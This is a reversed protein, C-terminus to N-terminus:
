GSLSERDLAPRALLARHFVGGSSDGTLMERALARLPHLEGRPAVSGPDHAALWPRSAIQVEFGGSALLERHAAGNMIRTVDHAGRVFRQAPRGRATLSLRAELPEISLLQGRCATRIATLARLPEEIWSLLGAAVVVDFAGFDGTALRDFDELRLEVLEDAGRRELEAKIAGNQLELGLCRRGRVAPWLLRLPDTGTPPKSAAPEPGSEVFRQPALRLGAAVGSGFSALARVAFRRSSPSSFHGAQYRLRTRIADAAAGPDRRLAAGVWAGGGREYVLLNQLDEEDTRWELHQVPPADIGWCRWGAAQMRLLLDAEEGHITAGPGLREDFGGVELGAVRRIAMAAGHSYAWIEPPAPGTPLRQAPQLGGAQSLGDVPGFGIGVDPELFAAAMADIWGPAIVCDDDTILIVDNSASRIGLNLQRSKGPRPSALWWCRPDNLAQVVTRAASSEAEIVLLEDSPGLSSAIAAVCQGVLEGRGRTCVLVTAAPRSSSAIDPM